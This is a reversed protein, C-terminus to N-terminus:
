CNDNRFHVAASEPTYLLLAATWVRGRVSPDWQCISTSRRVGGGGLRWFRTSAVAMITAVMHRFLSGCKPMLHKLLYLTVPSLQVPSYSALSCYLPLRSWFFFSQLSRRLSVGATVCTRGGLFMTECGVPSGGVQMRAEGVAM